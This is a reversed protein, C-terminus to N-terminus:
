EMFVADAQWTAQSFSLEPNAEKFAQYEKQAQRQTVYARYVTVQKGRSRANTIPYMIGIMVILTGMQEM